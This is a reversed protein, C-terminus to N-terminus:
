RYPPLRRRDRRRGGPCMGVRAAGLHRSRDGPDDRWTRVSIGSVDGGRAERARSASLSCLAKKPFGILTEANAPHISPAAGFGSNTRFQRSMLRFEDLLLVKIRLNIIAALAAARRAVTDIAAAASTVPVMWDISGDAPVTVRSLPWVKM